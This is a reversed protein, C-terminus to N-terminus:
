PDLLGTQHARTSAETRTAVGLKTLIRAVHTAVTNTTIFLEAAIQPNSRGRALVRLVDLERRTLGYDNRASTETTDTLRGRIALDEIRALLPKARLATAIARAERLRSQAGPRNNSALAASAADTLVTATEFRNGLDRWAEAARDWAPLAGPTATAQFTLRYATLTPTAALVSDAIATLEALRDATHAAVQRNRPAAARRARQLRAGLVAFRMAHFAPWDSLASARHEGLIRDALDLDGQDAAWAIRQLVIGAKAEVAGMTHQAFETLQRLLSEFHDTEGRCRAIDAAALRLFAAYLPPPGGALADQAVQIAEDWRGLFTLPFARAAALM